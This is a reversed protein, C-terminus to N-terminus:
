ELSWNLDFPNGGSGECYWQGWCTSWVRVRIVQGTTVEASTGDGLTVLDGVQEGHLLQVCDTPGNSVDHSILTFRLQGDHPATWRYWVTRAHAPVWFNNEGECASGFPGEGPEVSAARNDGSATGSDGTLDIADAFDDNPPFDLMSWRLEIENPPGPGTPVQLQYTTAASVVVGDLRGAVPELADRRDGTWVVVGPMVLLGDAPAVWRYWVSGEAGEPRPEGIQLTAGSTTAVVAGAPGTLDAANEFDDNAPRPVPPGWRLQFTGRGPGSGDVAIRYTRGALAQFTVAVDPGGIQTFRDLSTGQGITVVPDFRGWQNSQAPDISFTVPGTAEATWRYWVSDPVGGGLPPESPQSTAGITQGTTSGTGEALLQARGFHDNPPQQFVDLLQFSAWPRPSGSAQIRYTTGTVVPVFAWGPLYEGVPAFRAASAGTGVRLDADSRVALTGTRVAKWRWWTSGASTPTREGAQLTAGSLSGEYYPGLSASLADAFDDNRPQGSTLWALSSRLLATGAPSLVAGYGAFFGARYPHGEITTGFLALQNTNGTTAGIVPEWVASARAYNITGANVLTSVPTASYGTLRGRIVDLTGSHATLEGGPRGDNTLGFDDFLFPESVLVPASTAALRDGLVNPVVSSSVVVAAYTNATEETVDDDSVVTVCSTGAFARVGALLSADGPPPPATNAVFLVRTTCGAEPPEDAVAPTTASAGLLCMAAVPKLLRRM